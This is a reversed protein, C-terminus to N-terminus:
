AGTTNVLRQILDEWTVIGVPKGSQDLVAALTSRAARLKKLVSYAPERGGAKVIRRQYSKVLGSFRGDLLIDFINVLGDLEGREDTVPWREHNTKRARAILEEVPMRSSVARGPDFPKMVESATVRRFDVVNHIMRREDRTLTGQRESEITLYKFDERAVFLKPRERPERGLMLRALTEGVVHVPGLLASTIKLPGALLALARYPFRRFLSKPLLELGLLYVPFFAVLAMLYGSGGFRQVLEQTVLMIAVINMLNTVVLVTVMLRDPRALLLDLKLAAPDRLKVRHKLRVRNVSLIGAEIGSFIFSVLFCVAVALWIM